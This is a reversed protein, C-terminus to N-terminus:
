GKEKGKKAKKQAQMGTPVLQLALLITFTISKKM